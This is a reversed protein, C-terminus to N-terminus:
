YANHNSIRVQCTSDKEIVLNSISDLSLFESKNSLIANVSKVYCNNIIMANDSKLSLNNLKAKNIKIQASDSAIIALNFIKQNFEKNENSYTANYHLKGGIMKIMLSDPVFNNIGIWLPKNGIISRIEKCKVTIWLKSYIHLTDNIVEYLKKPLTTNKSYEIKILMSDSKDIQFNSGKEGVVVKFQPLKFEKYAINKEVEKKHKKADIFLFLLGSIIFIAFGIIIINSTKM